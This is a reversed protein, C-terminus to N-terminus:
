GRLRAILATSEAVVRSRAVVADFDV